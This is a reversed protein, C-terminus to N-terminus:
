MDHAVQQRKDTPLSMGGRINDTENSTPDRQPLEAIEGAEDAAVHQPTAPQKDENM